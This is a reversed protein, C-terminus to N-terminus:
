YLTSDFSTSNLQSHQIGARRLDSQEEVVALAAASAGADEDLVGYVLETRPKTHRNRPGIFESPELVTLPSRSHPILTANEWAFPRGLTTNWTDFCLLEYPKKEFESAM